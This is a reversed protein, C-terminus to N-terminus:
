LIANLTDFDLTMNRDRSIELKRRFEPTAFELGRFKEAGGYDYPDNVGSHVELLSYPIGAKRSWSSYYGLAEHNHGTVLTLEDTTAPVNGAITWNRSHPFYEYHCKREQVVRSSSGM